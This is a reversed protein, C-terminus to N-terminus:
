ERAPTRCPQGRAGRRYKNTACARRQRRLDRPMPMWTPARERVAEWYASSRVAMSAPSSCTPGKVAAM